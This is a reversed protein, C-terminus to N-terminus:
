PKWDQMAKALGPLVLIGGNYKILGMKRWRNLFYNVRPRTTGIMDALMEQTIEPGIMQAPGPQARSLDLLKQALRQESSHLLLDLKEAEIRSTHDLLYTLFMQAFSPERLARLMAERTIATVTCATIATVTSPRLHDSDLTSTGFFLGEELMGIVADKGGESIVTEKARGSQLYFVRDAASGQKFIIEGPQVSSITKGEGVGRLFSRPDFRKTSNPM